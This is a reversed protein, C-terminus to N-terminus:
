LRVLLLGEENGLEVLEFGQLLAELLLAVEHLVQEV